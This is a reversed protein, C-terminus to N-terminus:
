LFYNVSIYAINDDNLDICREYYAGNGFTDLEDEDLSRMKMWKIPSLKRAGRCDDDESPPESSLKGSDPSISRQEMLHHRKSGMANVISGPAGVESLGSDTSQHLPSQGNANASM